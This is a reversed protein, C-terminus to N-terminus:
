AGDVGLDRRLDTNISRVVSIFWDHAPDGQARQHWTMNIQFPVTKFPPDFIRLQCFESFVRAFGRPVTALLNSRAVVFPVSMVHEAKVSFKRTIGLKKIGRDVNRLFPLEVHQLKAYTARSLRAGLDPHNRRAIVCFTDTTLPEGLCAPPVAPFLGIVVDLAPTGLLSKAAEFTMHEASIQANPASSAVREILAPLLFAAPFDVLGIRFTRNIFAPDSAKGFTGAIERLADSIPQALQIARATPHMGGKARVFLRDGYFYRLRDLAHSLASQTIRLEDAARTVSRHRLLAAFAVLLNLDLGNLHMVNM